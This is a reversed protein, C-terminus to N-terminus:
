QSLNTRRGMDSAEFLVTVLEGLGLQINYGPLHYNSRISRHSHFTLRLLSRRIVLIKQGYMCYAIQNIAVGLM